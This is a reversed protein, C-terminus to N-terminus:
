FIKMMRKKMKKMSRNNTMNSNRAFHYAAAGLGLSMLSTVTRKM